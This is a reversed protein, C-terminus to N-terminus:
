GRLLESALVVLDDVGLGSDTRGILHGHLVRTWRAPVEDIGYIAGALGGTICAVTDTDHGLDIAASLASAFSETVRVAWVASALAPWVAGNVIDDSAPDYSRDLRGDWMSRNPPDVTDLVEEVRDLPGAGDLALRILEHFIACAEGAAPDGHTLASIRRAADITTSSGAGAFYVAAPTTRMLSGNGAAPQGSEFHSRAAEHWSLGSTLVSITQIGVDKPGGDVWAQFRAFIDAEDLGGRDVLSQAVLLAMQTDDTWEGPEWPGGGIMEGRGDVVPEPFRATFMGPPGFEFPAGLADGVAAGVLSGIARERRTVERM